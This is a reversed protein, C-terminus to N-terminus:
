ARKFLGSFLGSVRSWASKKPSSTFQPIVPDTVSSMKQEAPQPPVNPYHNLLDNRAAAIRALREQKPRDEKLFDITPPPLKEMAERIKPDTIHEPIESYVDEDNMFPAEAEEYIKNYEEEGLLARAEDVRRKEEADSMIPSIELLPKSPNNKPKEAFEAIPPLYAEPPLPPRPIDRYRKKDSKVLSDNFCVNSHQLVVPM